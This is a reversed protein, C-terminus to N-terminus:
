LLAAFVGDPDWRRRVAALREWAGATFSRRGRCADALLDAEAIYHGSGLPEVARMVGRLWGVNAADGAADRWVAYPVVCSRGLVAFAMDPLVPMRPVPQALIHSRGSAAVAAERALVPLLAAVGRRSWLTDAAYRYGQPWSGASGQALGAFSVPEEVQRDLSRGAFPCARFAELSRAAEARSGAFCTATVAVEGAGEGERSAGERSAAGVTVSLEVSAPLVAAIEEVWSAVRGAEGAAFVYRSTVIAAPLSWLRVRFRTVVAFFGPGAGRAAWFLDANEREGCRVTEGSATVAEIELVSACAPGWVGPNWGMGGSLLYGGLAVSGCHGVPFALGRGALGRALDGGRVAPQVWATGSAADVSWGALRSLDVVMGGERLSSGIWNHGGSRVSVPLGRSRAMGVAVAVDRECAVRVIVEPFRGPKLGNWVLAARADEYGAEGRWVLSGELSAAPSM